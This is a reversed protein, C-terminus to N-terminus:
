RSWSPPRTWTGCILWGTRQLSPTAAHVFATFAADRDQDM